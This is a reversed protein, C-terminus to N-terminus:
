PATRSLAPAIRRSGGRALLLVHWLEFDPGKGALDEPQDDGERDQVVQETALRQRADAFDELRTLVPDRGIEVLRLPQAAFGLGGQGGVLFADGLRVG